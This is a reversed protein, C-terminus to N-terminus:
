TIERWTDGNYYFLKDTSTNVWLDGIKFALTRSPKPQTSLVYIQPAGRAAGQRLGGLQEVADKLARLVTLTEAQSIGFEPISPISSM